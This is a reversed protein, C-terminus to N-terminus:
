GGTWLRGVSHPTHRLTITFGRYHPFGPRRPATSGRFFYAQTLEMEHLVPGANQVQRIFRPKPSLM